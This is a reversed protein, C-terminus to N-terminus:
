CSVSLCEIAASTNQLYVVIDVQAYPANLLLCLMDLVQIRTLM